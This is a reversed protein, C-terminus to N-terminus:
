QPGKGKWGEAELERELALVGECKARVWARMNEPCPPLPRRGLAADEAFGGAWVTGWKLGTLQAKVFAGEATAVAAAYRLATEHEGAAHAEFARVCARPAINGLGTIAGRGGYALTGLLYDTAGGLVTFDAGTAAVVRAIKGVDHDTHKVGAINPHRALRALLDADMNIGGSAAPFSYVILPIGTAGAVEEYYAALADDTMVGPYYSPPLTLTYDAGAAAADNSLEIAQATSQAGVTGAIVLAPSGARALTAKTSRVLEDREARSLTVAEGTSGMVVIGAVGAAALREVHREHSALDLAQARTPEFFTVVPVYIGGPLPM